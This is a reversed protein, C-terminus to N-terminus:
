KWCVVIKYFGIFVINKTLQKMFFLKMGPVVSRNLMIDIKDRFTTYENIDKMKFLFLIYYLIICSICMFM